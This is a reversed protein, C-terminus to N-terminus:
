EGARSRGGDKSSRLAAWAVYGGYVVRVAPHGSLALRYGASTSLAGTSCMLIIEKDHPLGRATRDFGLYSCERAGSVTPALMREYPWRLDILLSGPSRIREPTLHQPDLYGFGAPDHKLIERLVRVAYRVDRASTVVGLSVRITALADKGDLGMGLLVHSPEIRDATCASGVSVGVEYCDLGALLRIGEKRPFTLSLTGPLQWEPAAENLRLAPFVERLRTVFLMRLGELRRCESEGREAALRAAEGLGVIQAVGETGARRAQEQDGGFILPTWNTQGRWYIAGAGKPGCIKHATLTLFECGLEDVPTPIKGYTQAADTHFPVGAESAIRAIERLPQIAGTENNAHMVSILVSDPRLAARVDQARVRGDMGAALYTVAGGADQRCAGLISEHEIRTTIIHGGGRAALVGKIVANNAETGGSTFIVRQAPCGLNAAVNERAEEILGRAVRGQTHLSSANGPHCRLVRTMKRRVGPALPTTANHDLYVRRTWVIM